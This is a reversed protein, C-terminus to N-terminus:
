CCMLRPLIIVIFTYCNVFHCPFITHPEASISFLKSIKIAYLAVLSRSHVHSQFAAYVKHNLKRRLKPSYPLRNETSRNTLVPEILSNCCSNRRSNLWPSSVEAFATRQHTFCHRSSPDTVIFWRTTTTTRSTRRLFYSFHQLRCRLVILDADLCETATPIDSLLTLPLTCESKLKSGYLIWM